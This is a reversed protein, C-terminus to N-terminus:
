DVIEVDYWVGVDIVIEDECFWYVVVCGIECIM